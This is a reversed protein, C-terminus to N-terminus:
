SFIKNFNLIKFIYKLYIKIFWNKAGLICQLSNYFKSIKMLNCVITNQVGNPFFSLKGWPKHFCPSVLFVDM